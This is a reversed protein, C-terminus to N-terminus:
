KELEKSIYDSVEDARNYIMFHTAGKIIHASTIKRVPFIKDSDGHIHVINGPVWQNKWNLIQNIAWEVYVSDVSQRYARVMQMEEDNSVGLRRNDIKETFNFPRSPLVRNLKLKGAVRMWRPLEATSKISSVLILKQLPMQRAIEIGIMGGFSVGLVVAHKEKIPAAMRLAYEEITEKKHPRLWAIHKLEYGKLRLNAFIKEDAGLGSICYIVRKMSNKNM